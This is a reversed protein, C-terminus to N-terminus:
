RVDASVAPVGPVHTFNSFCGRTVPADVADLDERAIGHSPGSPEGFLYVNEAALLGFEALVSVPDNLYRQALDPELGARATLLAFRHDEASIAPTTGSRTVTSSMM